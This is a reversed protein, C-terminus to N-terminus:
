RAPRCASASSRSWSSPPCEDLLEPDIRARRELRELPRDQALIGVELEDGTSWCVAVLALAGPARRRRGLGPARDEDDRARVLFEVGERRERYEEALASILCPSTM